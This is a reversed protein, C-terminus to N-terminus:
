LRQWSEFDRLMPPTFSPRGEPRIYTWLTATPAEYLCDLEALAFLQPNIARHRLSEEIVLHDDGGGFGIAAADTEDSVREVNDIHGALRDMTCGGQSGEDQRKETKRRKSLFRRRGSKM